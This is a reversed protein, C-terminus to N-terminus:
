LKGAPGCRPGIWGAWGEGLGIARGASLGDPWPTSRWSETGDVSVKGQAGPYGRNGCRYLDAARIRRQVRGNRELRLGPSDGTVRRVSVFSTTAPASSSWLTKTEASLM